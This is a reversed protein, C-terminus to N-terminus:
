CGGRRTVRFEFNQKVKNGQATQAPKWRPMRAVADLLIRDTKESGSSQTVRAHTVRGSEDVTFHVAVEAFGPPVRLKYLGNETLFEHLQEQGGAFKAETEPVVTFQIELRNDVPTRTVVNPSRYDVRIDIDSGLVAGALLVKQEGTLHEDKGTAKATKGETTVSIEVSAYADIWHMPYDPILDVLTSVNNLKEQPLPHVYLGTLRYDLDSSADQSFAMFGWFLAM